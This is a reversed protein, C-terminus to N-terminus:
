MPFVEAGGSAALDRPCSATLTDSGIALLDARAFSDPSTYRRPYSVDTTKFYIIGRRMWVHKIDHNRALSRAEALASREAATSREYIGIRDEPWSGRVARATIGRRRRAAALWENRRAVSIFRIVLPWPASRNSRIRISDAIDSQLFELGLAAALSM